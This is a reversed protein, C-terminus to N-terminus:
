QLTFQRIEERLNKFHRELGEFDNRRILEKDFLSSGMGVGFAGSEFFSKINDPSVGGTPVLKITDLPALVEKIFKPGLQTAPFVKVASAGLSWAHYIETPSYAGPFVPIDAKVAKQVVKENLIPTVIFQAGSAVAKDFDGLSCVTGAGVNLNPFSTRLDSIIQAVGVTNMTVELTHFGANVYTQALPKISAIDFGRIIGIVPTKKYSEWSFGVKDQM